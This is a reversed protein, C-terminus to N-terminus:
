TIIDLEKTNQSYINVLARKKTDTNLIKSKCRIMFIPIWFLIIM